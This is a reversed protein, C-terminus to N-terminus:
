LNQRKIRSDLDGRQESQHRQDPLATKKKGGGGLFFDELFDSLLSDTARICLCTDCNKDMDAGEAVM